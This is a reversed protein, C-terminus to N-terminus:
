IIKHAFKRMPLNTLDLGNIEDVSDLVLSAGIAPMLNMADKDMDGHGIVVAPKNAAVMYGIEFATGSDPNAVELVGVLMDANQMAVVDAKYTMVAWEFDPNFEGDVIPNVGEYQNLLPVHITGVTPNNSLAQYLAVLSEEQEDSFWGAALYVNRAGAVSPVKNGDKIAQLRQTVTEVSM